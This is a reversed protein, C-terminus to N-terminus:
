FIEAPEARRLRRMALAGSVVCMTLTLGYVAAIRDPAMKLPLLTASAAFRYLLSSIALGPLFGFVSLIVSEQIVVGFLYRDRYGMAKLTAYERLHDSVDTYLIQYVIICGVLMGISLGLRFVFGIPTNISWFTRELDILGDHTLVLVDRPLAAILRARVDEPDFGPKLKILGVNVSEPKRYNLIRFFSRDSMLVTGDVGFSTGMTFAGVVEVHRGAIESIVRKGAALERGVPGFEPRARTDFLITDDERLVDLNEDVGALKFYGPRPQFGVMLITRERRTWPSKWPAQGLYVPEVAAVGEAALCQYLRREPFGAFTLLHEYQPSVLALESSMHAFQIGASDMMADEFGLQMLMLIVAFAIGTTAALLRLREHALQLWALPIRSKV